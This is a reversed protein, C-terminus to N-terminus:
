SRIAFDWTVYLIDGGRAGMLASLSTEEDRRSRPREVPRLVLAYEGNPLDRPLKIRYRGRGLSQIESGVPEEIIPEAPLGDDFESLRARAAGVLRYNDRTPVLEVIKPRYDEPNVGPINNFEVEIEADPALKRAASLGPLAWVATMKPDSNRFLGDLELDNGIGLAPTAFALAREGLGRLASLANGGRSKDDTVAVEATQPELALREAHSAVWAHPGPTPTAPAPVPPSAEQTEAPPQEALQKLAESLLAITEPTVAAAVDDGSARM